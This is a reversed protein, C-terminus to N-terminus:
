TPDEALLQAARDLMKLRGDASDPYYESMGLGLLKLRSLFIAEAYNTISILPENKLALEECLVGLPGLDYAGMELGSSLAHHGMGAADGMVVVNKGAAPYRLCQQEFKFTGAFPSKAATEMGPLKAGRKRSLLAGKRLTARIKQQLEHDSLEITSESMLLLAGRVFYEEAQEPQQNLLAEPVEIVVWTGEDSDGHGSAWLSVETPTVGATDMLASLDTDIRRTRPGFPVAVHASMFYKPYSFRVNELNLQRVTSSKGGETIVVLDPVGLDEVDKTKGHQLLVRYYGDTSPELRLVSGRRIALRPSPSAALGKLYEYFLHEAKDLRVHREPPTSLRTWIRCPEDERPTTRRDQLYNPVPGPAQDGVRSNEVIPTAIDLLRRHLEPSLRRVDELYTSRLHLHIPRTYSTRKEAVTVQFGRYLLELAAAVGNPGLGSVVARGRGIASHGDSM